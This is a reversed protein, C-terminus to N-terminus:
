NCPSNLYLRIFEFLFLNTLVFTFSNFWSCVFILICADFFHLCASLNISFWDFFLIGAFLDFCMGLLYLLLLTLNLCISKQFEDYEFCLCNQQPVLPSRYPIIWSLLNNSKSSINASFFFGNNIAFAISAFESAKVSLCYKWPIKVRDTFTTTNKRMFFFQRNM